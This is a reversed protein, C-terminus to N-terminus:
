HLRLPNHNNDSAFASPGLIKKWTDGPTASTLGITLHLDFDDHGTQPAGDEGIPMSVYTDLSELTLLPTTITMPMSHAARGGDLIPDNAVSIFAAATNM